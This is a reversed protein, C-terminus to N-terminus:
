LEYKLDGNIYTLEIFGKIFKLKYEALKLETELWKSERSNLLFLSSEGNTFKLREAEVLLRSYAASREANVIQEATVKITEIIYKRKFNIQNQKNITELENNKADLDAMKYENRPKRLFLPFSFSAGWKYNNTNLTPFIIDNSTNLFNYSLDLVPKIMERKLRKETELVKQKALYQSILPNMNQENIITQQINKITLSYVQELSDTINMNSLSLTSSMPNIIALENLKKIMEIEGVQRDLLRSQLFIAAEVTDITPREGVVSLESIGKLRQAALTAFYSFLNNIKKTYLADVYVNSASFMLDNMQIKQEASFYESYHKAKVVDARRKDFMLGQLLSAEIGVYPLGVLPTLLEPNIFIGKGYQYGVKLYQSTYIPQKLEANAYTFYNSSNFQKGEINTGLQPDFNGKAAKLQAGGYAINNEAKKSLPNMEKVSSLFTNYSYMSVTQSLCIESLGMLLVVLSNRSLSAM